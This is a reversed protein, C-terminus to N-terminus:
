AACGMLAHRVEDIFVIGDNETLRVAEKAVADAPFMREAEAEEQMELM